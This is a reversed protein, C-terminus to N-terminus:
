EAVEVGLTTAMEGQRIILPQSSGQRVGGPVRVNIQYVGVEGPALGAYDVALAVGDLTVDPALNVVSLPDSGAAAGDEVAPSTRGLGTAFITLSDGSRIPNSDSVLESNEGRFVLASDAGVSNGRFVTPAAAQITFNYNNSIGGPSRMFITSKGAVTSPLQANIQTPSVLVIPISIGNVALCSEAVATPLPIQSTAVNLMSLDRGTVTVLGGAAVNPSRDAASVVGTIQPSAVPADYAAPLITIGSQSLSVITSQNALAALTRSFAYGTTVAAPTFLPSEVMRTPTLRTGSNNVDIKQIIGSGGADLSSTRLATQGLFTFGASNEGAPSGVSTV